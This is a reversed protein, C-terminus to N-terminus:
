GRLKEAVDEPIREPKGDKRTLCAHVTVGTALLEREGKEPETDTAPTEARWIEYEFGVRVRGLEAVRTHIEILDDYHASKLYKVEVEAVPLILGREEFQKYTMGRERILENRGAEFWRLYNAYYAVGMMDTDGYIVRLKTIVPKSFEPRIFGPNSPEKAVDRAGAM